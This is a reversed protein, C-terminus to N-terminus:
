AWLLHELPKSIRLFTKLIFYGQLVQTSVERQQNPEFGLLRVRGHCVLYFDSCNHEYDVYNESPAV